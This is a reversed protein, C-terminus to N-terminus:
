ESATFDTPNTGAAHLRWMEMFANELGLVFPLTKFARHELGLSLRGKVASLMGPSVCLEVVKEVYDAMNGVVLDDLGTSKMISATVRSQFTEGQVAILPVGAWLADFATSHANFIPTDLFLDACSLRALHDSKNAIRPANLLREPDIGLKLATSRLNTFAEDDLRFWLVANDVRELIHIWLAFVGPEIKHASNFCCLVPVDEPLESDGRTQRYNSLKLSDNPILWGYPLTVISEKFSARQEPTILDPGVLTYDHLGGTTGAFGLWAVLLPAPRLAAIDPRAGLVLGGLDVLIDIGDTEIRTAAAEASLRGEQRLDVFQDAGVEVQRRYTSQDDQGTSYAFIDMRDSKHVEFLASILQGVPHDRFDNSLFGVRLKSTLRDTSQIRKLRKRKQANVLLRTTRITAVTALEEQSLPLSLAGFAGLASIQPNRAVIESRISQVLKDYDRWDCIELRANLLGATAPFNSPDFELAKSFSDAAACNQRRAVLIRALTYHSEASRPSLNIAIRAATEAEDDRSLLSLTIALNIHAEVHDPNLKLATRYLTVAEEARGLSVLVTAQNFPFGSDRPALERARVYSKLAEEYREQANLVTGLNGHYKAVLPSDNVARRLLVEARDQNGTQHALVGLFSLAESNEPEINLVQMYTQEALELDGSKHCELGKALLNEVAAM